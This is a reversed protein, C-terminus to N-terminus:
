GVAVSVPVNLHSRAISFLEQRTLPVGYSSSEAKETSKLDTPQSFSHFCSKQVEPSLLDKQFPQTSCLHQPGTDEMTSLQPHFSYIRASWLTSVVENLQTPPVTSPTPVKTWTVKCKCPSHFPHIFISQSEVDRKSCPGLPLCPGGPDNPWFPSGPAWTPKYSLHSCYLFPRNKGRSIM